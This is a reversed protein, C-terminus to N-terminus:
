ESKEKKKNLKSDLDNRINNAAQQRNKINDHSKFKQYYKNLEQNKANELATKQKNIQEIQSDYEKCLTLFVDQILAIDLKEKQGIEILEVMWKILDEMDVYPKDEYYITKIDM